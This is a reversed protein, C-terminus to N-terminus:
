RSLFSVAAFGHSIKQEAGSDHEDHRRDRRQGTTLLRCHRGRLLSAARDGRRCPGVLRCPSTAGRLSVVIRSILRGEALLVAHSTMVFPRLTATQREVLKVRGVDVAVRFGPFFHYTTKAGAHHRRVARWLGRGRRALREGATDFGHEIAGPRTVEIWARRREM